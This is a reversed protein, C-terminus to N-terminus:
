FQRIYSAPDDSRPYDEWYSTAERRVRRQMADRGRLKFYAGVPVVVLAYVVFMLIPATIWGLTLGLGMWAIYLLRGVAPVRALVFVSVGCVVLVLALGPRHSAFDLWAALAGFGLGTVLGFNARDRRSPNTNIDSYIGM